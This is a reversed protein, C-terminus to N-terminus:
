GCAVSRTSPPSSAFLAAFSPRRTSIRSPRRQSGRRCRLAVRAFRSPQPFRARHPAFSHCRRTRRSRPRAEVAAHSRKRTARSCSLAAPRPPLLPRSLPRASAPLVGPRAQDDDAADDDEDDEDDDEDEDDEEDESDEEEGPESDSDDSDSGDANPASALAADELSAASATPTQMSDGDESM